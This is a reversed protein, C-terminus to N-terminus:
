SRSSSGSGTGFPICAMRWHVTAAPRYHRQYWRPVIRPSQWSFYESFKLTSLIVAVCVLMTQPVPLTQKNQVFIRTSCSTRHQRRSCGSSLLSSVNGALPASSTSTTSLCSSFARRALGRLHTTKQIPYSLSQVIDDIRISYRPM